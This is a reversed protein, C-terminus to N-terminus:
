RSPKVVQLNNQVSFVGPVQNAQLGAVDKDSQNDVIGELAVHGAKVIVHITPAAEWSYRSMGGFSFIKRAVEVRIRQDDPFLPLNEINNVVKTVGEIHKVADEADRKLGTTIVAGGLTVTTGDVRYLLNDFISYYPLMALEHRVERTLQVQQRDSGTIIPKTGPLVQFMQQGNASNSQDNGKNQAAAFASSGIFIVASLAANLLVNKRM